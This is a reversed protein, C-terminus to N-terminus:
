EETVPELRPTNKIYLQKLIKRKGIIEKQWSVEKSIKKLRITQYFASNPNHTLKKLRKKKVHNRRTAWSASERYGAKM